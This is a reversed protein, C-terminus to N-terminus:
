AKNEGDEKPKNKEREKEAEERQKLIYWQDPCAMFCYKTRPQNNEIEYLCTCFPKRTTRFRNDNIM